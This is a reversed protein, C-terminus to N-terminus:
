LLSSWQAGVSKDKLSTEPAIEDMLNLSILHNRLSPASNQGVVYSQLRQQLRQQIRQQLLQEQCRLARLQSGALINPLSYGINSLKPIYPTSLMLRRTTLNYPKEIVTSTQANLPASDIASLTRTVMSSPMMSPTISPVFNTPLPDSKSSNPSLSLKVKSESKLSERLNCTQSDTAKTPQNIRRMRLCLLPADKRFLEHCYSNEGSGESVRRFNWGNVQRMFSPFRTHRFYLPIVEKTFVEPQLVRWSRGHPLWSIISEFEPNSLIWHLKVPFSNKTNYMMYNYMSSHDDDNETRTSQYMGESPHHSISQEPYQFPTQNLPRM